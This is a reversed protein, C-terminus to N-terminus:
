LKVQRPWVQGYVDKKTYRQDWSWPVDASSIFNSSVQLLVAIASPNLMGESTYPQPPLEYPVPLPVVDSSSDSNRSGRWTLNM